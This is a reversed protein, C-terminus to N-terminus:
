NLVEPICSNPALGYLFGRSLPFTETQSCSSRSPACSSVAASILISFVEYLTDLLQWTQAFRILWTTLVNTEWPQTQQELGRPPERLKELQLFPFNARNSVPYTFDTLRASLGSWGRSRRRTIPFVLVLAMDRSAKIARNQKWKLQWGYQCVSSLPFSWMLIPSSFQSLIRPSSQRRVSRCGSHHASIDKLLYNFCLSILLLLGALHDVNQSIPILFWECVNSVLSM